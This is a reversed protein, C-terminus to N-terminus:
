LRGLQAVSQVHLDRAHINEIALSWKQGFTHTRSGVLFWLGGGPSRGYNGQVRFYM